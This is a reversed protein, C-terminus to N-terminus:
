KVVTILGQIDPNPASHYHVVDAKTFTFSYSEGKALLPGAFLTPTVDEKAPAKHAHAGGDHERMANQKTAEQNTWTVTTGVRIRINPKSYTSDYINIKVNSQDTLDVEPATVEDLHDGTAIPESTKTTSDSTLAVVGVSAGVAFVIVLIVLLLDKKKM